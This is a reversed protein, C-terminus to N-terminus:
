GADRTAGRSLQSCEDDLVQRLEEFKELENEGIEEGMRRLRRMIPLAAIDEVRIHAAVAKESQDIFYTILKMM